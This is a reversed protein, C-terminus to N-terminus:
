KIKTILLIGFIFDLLGFVVTASGAVVSIIGKTNERKEHAAKENEANEIAQELLRFSRNQAEEFPDFAEENRKKHLGVLIQEVIADYTNLSYRLKNEFYTAECAEPERNSGWAYRLATAIVTPAIYYEDLKQRHQNVPVDAIILLQELTTIDKKRGAMITLVTYEQQMSVTSNVMILFFFSIKRM